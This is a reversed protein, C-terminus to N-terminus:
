TPTKTPAQAPAQAPSQAPTQAPSQATGGQGAGKPPKGTSRLNVVKNLLDFWFPAGLSVALATFFIGFLKVLIFQGSRSKTPPTDKSQTFPWGEPWGLPLNLTKTTSLIKKQWATWEEQKKPDTPMKESAVKESATVVAARLAQDSYFSKAIMFTDANLAVSIVFALLFIWYQSKRKYWGSVRDMADDYWTEINKLAKDLDGDASAILPGLAKKLPNTDPQIKGVIGKVEDFTSVKQPQSDGKLTELLALAFSRGPIYSPSYGGRSVPPKTGLFLPHQYIKDLLEQDNGLLDLIGKALTKPRWSLMQAIWENIVSCVLSLFLYVFILGIGVELILSNFM